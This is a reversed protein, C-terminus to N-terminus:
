DRLYLEIRDTTWIPIGCGFFDTDETWIPCNLVLALALYPWDDEDRGKLRERAQFELPEFLTTPITQIFPRLSELKTIAARIEAEAGGRKALVEPLYIAVDDFAEDVTLLDVAVAYDRILRAVRTGLIARMLINADLILQKAV